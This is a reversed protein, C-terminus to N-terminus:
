KSKRLMKVLADMKQPEETFLSNVYRKAVVKLESLRTKDIEDIPLNDSLLPNLRYYKDPSLFDKLLTHVDETDVSSAIIQNM